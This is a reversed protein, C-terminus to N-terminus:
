EQGYNDIKGLLWVAEKITHVQDLERPELSGLPNGDYKCCLGLIVVNGLLIQGEM